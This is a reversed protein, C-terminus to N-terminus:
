RGYQKTLRTTYSLSYFFTIPLICLDFAALTLGIGLIIKRNKTPTPLVPLGIAVVPGGSQQPFEVTNRLEYDGQLKTWSSRDSNTTQSMM